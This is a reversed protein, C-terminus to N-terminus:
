LGKIIREWQSFFTKSAKGSSPRSILAERMSEELKSRKNKELTELYEIVRTAMDGRSMKDFRHQNMGPLIRGAFSALDSNTPFLRKDRLLDFLHLSSTADGNTKASYRTSPTQIQADSESCEALRIYGEIVSVFAPFEAMALDKFLMLDERSFRSAIESTRNIFSLFAQHSKRM